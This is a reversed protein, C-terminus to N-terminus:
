QPRRRPRGFVEYNGGHRPTGRVKRVRMVVMTPWIERSEKLASKWDHCGQIWGLSRERQQKVEIEEM